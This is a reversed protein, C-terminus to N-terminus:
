HGAGLQERRREALLREAFDLREAMEALQGELQDIRAELARTREETGADDPPADVWEGGFGKWHRRRKSRQRMGEAMADALPSRFFWRAILATSFAGAIAPLIWWDM